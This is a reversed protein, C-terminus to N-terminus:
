GERYISTCMSNSVKLFLSDHELCFGFVIDFGMGAKNM